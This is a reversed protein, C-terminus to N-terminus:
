GSYASRLLTRVYLVAYMTTAFLSIALTSARVAWAARAGAFVACCAATAFTSGALARRRGIAPMDVLWAGVQLFCILPCVTSAILSLVCLRGLAGASRSFLSTGSARRLRDRRTATAPVRVKLSSQCTCTSCRSRQPDSLLKEDRVSTSLCTGFSMAFWAAWVLVTTRRWDPELTLAVRDMWGALPARLARPVYACAVPDGRYSARSPLMSPRHSALRTRPPRPRAPPVDANADAGTPTGAPPTVTAYDRVEGGPADFLGTSSAMRVPHARVPPAEELDDEAAEGDEGKSLFPAGEEAPEAQGGQHARSGGAHSIAGPADRVDALELVLPSGNFRAIRTLADLAAAPRGARVLFRPSEHLTFFLVRAAFLGTTQRVAV